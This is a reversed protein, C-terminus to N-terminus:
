SAPSPTPSSLGTASPRPREHRPQARSGAAAAPTLQYRPPSLARWCSLSCHRPPRPRTPWLRAHTCLAPSASLGFRGGGAAVQRSARGARRGWVRPSPGRSPALHVTVDGDRVPQSPGDRRWVSPPCQCRALARCSQWGWFVPSSSRHHSPSPARTRTSPLLRVLVVCEPRDTQSRFHRDGRHRTGGQTVLLRTVPACGCKARGLGVSARAEPHCLRPQAAWQAAPCRGHRDGSRAISIDDSDTSSGRAHSRPTGEM